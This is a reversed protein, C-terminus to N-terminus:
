SLKFTFLLFFSAFKRNQLVLPLDYFCSKKEDPQQQKVIPRFGIRFLMFLFIVFRTNLCTTQSVSLNWEGVLKTGRSLHDRSFEMQGPPFTTSFRFNPSWIPQPGNTWHPIPLTPIFHTESWIHQLRLLYQSLLYQLLMKLPSALLGIM